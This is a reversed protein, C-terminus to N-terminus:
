GHFTRTDAPRVALTAAAIPAVSVGPTDPVIKFTLDYVTMVTRVSKSLKPLFTAAGWFVDLNDVQCLHPCRYKLWIVSKLYGAFPASDLRLTWRPSVVPMEIPTASYVFFHAEPLLHDLERCLEYVYRGVGTRSGQVFGQLSRGDIGVRM